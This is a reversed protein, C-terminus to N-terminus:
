FIILLSFATYILGCAYAVLRYHEEAHPTLSVLLSSCTRTAWLISVIALGYVVISGDPLMLSLASFLVMPLLCYGIISTCRYLDLSGYSGALLNFVTYLFVSGVIGWGLIVGIHWKKDLLQCAGFLLCFLLPGSLDGDEMLEANLRFPRLISWTKKSIQPLNIGLEELLPPEDEFGFNAMGPRVPPPPTYLGPGTGPGYPGAPSGMDFSMFSMGPGSGRGPGGMAVQRGGMVQPSPQNVRRAFPQNGSPDFSVSVEGEPGM